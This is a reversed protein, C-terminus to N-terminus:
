KTVVLKHYYNRVGDSLILFYMGPAVNRLGIQTQQDNVLFGEVLRGNSDFLQAVLPQNIPADISLTVQDNAPNPFVQIGFDAAAVTEISNPDFFQVDDWFYTKNEGVDAGSQGFNFFITAKDYTNNLDLPDGQVENSFDFILTEWGMAITTTDETEVSIGDDTADEVKLRVPVGADPSWVRVTMRTEDMSFPIPGSLGYFGVLTGAFSEAVDIKVTQAVTNNEDEPDEVIATINGSFDFLPYNVDPDEFTVPLDLLEVGGTGPFQVDDWFFTQEGADMGTTGFNFFIILNNYENNLNLIPGTVANAFDFTLTEYAMAVTTTDETEVAVFSNGLNEVKMRVPIGAAPSWVRVTIQTADTTFPIPATLGDTGIVTGAFDASGDGRITQAVTNSADEPDVVLQTFTGEFDGFTYTVDPDEFTIPLDLPSLGGGGAFQIDEFFYIQEGVVSGEAGFNFFIIVKDYIADVDLPPGAVNNSFDFTLTEWAMAQTTQTETEVSIAGALRNEVKLRVPIGAEPSWVRVTMRTDDVNFPIPSVLGDLGVVTGAFDQAADTRITQAVTNGADEPDATTFTAAGAFDGFEYVQMPDDFTIPLSLFNFGGGGIFEVDDWYYIQEGVVVGEAGFNFFISIIDYDANLDIVGAVPNALDFTLTEWTMAVTTLEETEAFIGGDASNEVKLRVPINAEPSWVRVTIRTDDVTFPIPNALGNSAVTTGAFTLAADTRITEVVTNMPDTPDTVISSAAGGFDGLAYDIGPDEFTIPLDPQALMPPPCTAAFQITTNTAGLQWFGGFSVKSWLVNLDIDAPPTGTWTLTISLEGPVSNDIPSVAPSGTIPGGFANVIMDNVPDADADAVTVKVSQADVNEITLLVASSTQAPDQNNTVLAECFPSDGATANLTVDVTEDMGAVTVDGMADDFGAASATYAYMGDALDITAVGSADTTLMQGDIDISAGDIPNMGDTVNFTVTSTPGAPPCVAAFQVTTNMDDLQWFGGFSVKSWLVNLDIDAPPTGTWTLTISVEGPVSADVPSVAPSGTIPGGFANVIMDNVPDADADAVTVKISQGDVNEITLLVASTTQAPDGNNTVETACFQSTPPEPCTAAFQITTNTAGLQWFGGFSVKSWLVNLDIDAPPTGTWTLTISLEGPVSNDIPSVAPSGTIPGGFANVIMDNVPDADADAVTVKISQADVNEITLFVASSTQAPDQNNTVLTGCFPSDLSAPSLTVNETVAGGAVTVNDMVDDFGAASVTYTFTGDELDITAVGSMDTTAMQGDVSIMAGDVPNMGDTVNFTVTSTPGVPCTVDFPITSNVGDLQWFGAFSDKSWLVNLDVDAPPTGTWTLTISLEGVVSMDIPSVAPSGTIPGGFANVLMDDVPDADASAVTVKMTQAGTNEITLFVASSTQAPDMNNTVQAECFPSDNTGPILTVSESVAAGAVTVSGMGDTFGSASATYAYTGDPLDVTAVGSADTTLTQGSIDVDAGDLPNMGDDVNFTITYVPGTPCTAAFPISTNSGSLQWFGGFSVKSWLVNLDIDAPPTGTWTLTISLEGSVSADIPSVAPSGTIPGGFANVLMDNVPDADGDAVTIKISQADVNEITLFVVSATEATNGNNFVQAECFASVQGYSLGATLFLLCLLILKKM